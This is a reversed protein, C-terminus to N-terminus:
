NIITDGMLQYTAYEARYVSIPYNFYIIAYSWRTGEEVYPVYTYDQGKIFLISLLFLYVILIKAKM